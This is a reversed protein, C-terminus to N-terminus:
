SLRNPFLNYIEGLFDPKISPM